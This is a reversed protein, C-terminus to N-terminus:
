LVKDITFMISRMPKNRIYNFFNDYSGNFDLTEKQIFNISVRNSNYGEPYDKLFAIINTIKINSKTKIFDIYTMLYDEIDILSTLQDFQGISIIYSKNKNESTLSVQYGNDELEVLCLKTTDKIYEEFSFHELTEKFFGFRKMRTKNSIKQYEEIIYSKLEDDIEIGMEFAIEYDDQSSFSVENNIVKFSIDKNNITVEINNGWVDVPEINFEEFLVLNIM